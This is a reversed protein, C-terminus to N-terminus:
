LAKQTINKLVLKQVKQKISDVRLPHDEGNKEVMSKKIKEKIHASKFVNDVGYIKLNTQQRKILKRTPHTCKKNLVNNPSTVWEGYDRDIFILPDIMKTYIQNDALIILDGFETKLREKISGLTSFKM